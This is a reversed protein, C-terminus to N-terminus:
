QEREEPELRSMTKTAQGEETGMRPVTPQNMWGERNCLKRHYTFLYDMDIYRDIQIKVHRSM